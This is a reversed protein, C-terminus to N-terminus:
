ARSLLQSRVVAMRLGNATARKLPGQKRKNVRAGQVAGLVRQLGRRAAIAPAKKMISASTRRDTLSAGEPGSTTCSLILLVM